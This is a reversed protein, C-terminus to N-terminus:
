TNCRVVAFAVDQGFLWVNQEPNEWGVRRRIERRWAVLAGSRDSDQTLNRLLEQLAQVASSGPRAYLRCSEGLDEGLCITESGDMRAIIAKTQDLLPSEYTLALQGDLVVGAAGAMYCAAATHLGIGGQAWVPLSVNSLLQQILIFTTEQGVWGGAEHGKAILGDAGAEVGLLAQDLCTTEVLVFLNQDHFTKIQLRLAGPDSQSLIVVQIQKPLDSRVRNIFKVDRGDLRVGCDRNSYQAIKSIGSLAVRDNEAYELDFVGLEGARSAAIAISPDALGPPTLAIFQFPKM